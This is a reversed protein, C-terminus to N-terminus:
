AYSEKPEVESFDVGFRELDRKLPGMFKGNYNKALIQRRENASVGGWMGYQEKTEYAWELCPKRNSCLFCISRVQTFQLNKHAQGDDESFFLSTNIGKCRDEETYPFPRRTNMAAFLEDADYFINQGKAGYGFKTVKHKKAVRLITRDSVEYKKVADELSIKGSM